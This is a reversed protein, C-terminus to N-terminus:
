FDLGDLEKLAETEVETLVIQQLEKSLEEDGGLIIVVRSAIKGIESPAFGSFTRRLFVLARKFHEDSLQGIYSNLQDWIVKNEILSDRNRGALGEFWGAGVDAPIGPSIRRCVENSIQIDDLLGRELLIATAYGSLGPNLDDRASLIKLQDLFLEEDVVTGLAVSNLSDLAKFILKSADNDCGSSHVIQLVAEVFLEKLLEKFHGVSIKRISGFEILDALYIISEALLPLETTDVALNQLTKGAASLQNTLGSNCATKILAVATKVSQCDNLEQAFKVAVALDITEGLLISEVLAIESEPRWNLIWNEKFGGDIASLKAFPVKLFNIKHFFRSRRLGLFASDDTKARTNERLDLNLEQDRNLKFRQLTLNKLQREFDEQISTRLSNEPLSGIQDGIELMPFYSTVSQGFITKASDKLDSLVPGWGEKLSALSEALRVAEIAHATSVSTGGKRLQASLQTLYLAPLDNIKDEKMLEWMLQFYAPARNGAGYGSQSSLKFYSFPMLTLSSKINPLKNIEADTMVHGCGQLAPTHYAGTVAVIKEPPVGEELVDKIRRRMYSERVLNEARHYSKDNGELQRMTKGLELVTQRFSDKYTLREFSREWHSDYDMEGASQAIESYIDRYALEGGGSYEVESLGLFISSPLDIFRSEANNEATWMLAQYEPSYEALPLVLTKVPPENSYALIAIPPKCNKDVIYPILSDADSLGEILVVQPQVETLLKLLHWSAGPSLHRVGFFHIKDFEKM